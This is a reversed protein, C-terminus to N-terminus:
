NTANRSILAPRRGRRSVFGTHQHPPPHQHSEQHLHYSPHKQEDDDHQQQQMQQPPTHRRHHHLLLDGKQLADGHFEPAIIEVVPMSKNMMNTESMTRSFSSEMMMTPEYDDMFRITKHSRTSSPTPPTPTSYYPTLNPSYHHHHQQSYSPHQNSSRTEHHNWYYKSEAFSSSAITSGGSSLMPVSLYSPPHYQHHNSHHYPIPTHPHEEHHHQHQHQVSSSDTINRGIRRPKFISSVTKHSKRWTALTPTMPSQLLPEPTKVTLSSSKGHGVTTNYQPSLPPNPPQNVIRMASCLSLEDRIFLKSSALSSCFLYHPLLIILQTCYISM